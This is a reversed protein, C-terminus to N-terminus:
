PGRGIHKAFTVFYSIYALARRCCPLQLPKSARYMQKADGVSDLILGNARKSEMDQGSLIYDAEALQALQLARIFRKPMVAIQEPLLLELNGTFLFLSNEAIYTSNYQGEPVYALQDQSYNVNSNLLNYNLKCLHNRADILAAIKNDTTASDWGTTNPVDLATMEAQALTQFTNLGFALPSDLEIGYSADICLTNGSTDTVFLEVGRAARLYTTDNPDNPDAAVGTLQNATAPVTFTVSPSGAVFGAVPTQSVLENENQDLVRYAVSAANIANGYRDTLPITLTVATGALYILM